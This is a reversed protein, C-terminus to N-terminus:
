FVNIKNLCNSYIVGIIYEANPYQEKNYRMYVPFM